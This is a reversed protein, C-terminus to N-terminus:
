HFYLRELEAIETKRHEKEGDLLVFMDGWFRILADDGIRLGALQQVTLELLFMLEGDKLSRLDFVPKDPAKATARM